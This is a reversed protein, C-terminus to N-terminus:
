LLCRSCTSPKKRRNLRRYRAAPVTAKASGRGHGFDVDNREHVDNEHQQDNEHDGRIDHLETKINLHGLNAAHLVSRLIQGDDADGLAALREQVFLGDIDVQEGCANM